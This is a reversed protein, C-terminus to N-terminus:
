WDTPTPRCVHAARNVASTQFLKMTSNSQSNCPPRGLVLSALSACAAAL